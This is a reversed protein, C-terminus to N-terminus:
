FRRVVVTRRFCDLRVLEEILERLTPDAAGLREELEDFVPEDDPGLGRGLAFVALKEAVCRVFAPDRAIRRELSAPGDLLTGDSLEGSADVPKGGDETRWRGIPDYNELAFGLADM